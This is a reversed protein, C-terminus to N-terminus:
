VYSAQLRAVFRGAAVEREREGFRHNIEESSCLRGLRMRGGECAEQVVIHCNSGTPETKAANRFIQDGGNVIATDLSKGDYAVISAYITKAHANRRV